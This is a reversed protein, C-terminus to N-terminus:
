DNINRLAAAIAIIRKDGDFSTPHLDYIDYFDDDYTIVVKDEGGYYLKDYCTRWQKVIREADELGGDSEMCEKLVDAYHENIDALVTFEGFHNEGFNEIGITMPRVYDDGRHWRKHQWHKDVWLLRMDNREAFQTAQEYTDFGTVAWGTQVADDRQSATTEILELSSAGLQTDLIEQLIEKNTM